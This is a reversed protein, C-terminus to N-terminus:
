AQAEPYLRYGQRVREPTMRDGLKASLRSEFGKVGTQDTGTLICVFEGGRNHCVIDEQRCLEALSKNLEADEESAKIWYVAFPQDFKSVTDVNRRLREDLEPHFKVDSGSAEIVPGKRSPAADGQNMLSSLEEATVHGVNSDRFKLRRGSRRLLADVRARLEAPTFPQTIFDDAGARLYLVKDAQRNAAPSLFALSSASDRALDLIAAIAGLNRSPTILVLGPRERKARKVGESLDAEARVDYDDGLAETVRIVIDPPAGILLVSRTATEEWPKTVDSVQAGDSEYNILGRGNLIRYHAALNSHDAYRLKTLRMLRGNTAPDHALDIVGFADHELQRIVPNLEADNEDGAVLLTTVPLDELANILSQTISLAFHASYATNILTYVPDIVLRRAGSKKIYDGLEEVIALVDAPSEVLEFYRQSPNLIGLQGRKVAAEVNFGLASAQALVNEPRQDTILVGPEQLELGRALYQLGLISKGVGAGGKVVYVKHPTLGGAGYDLLDIGSILRDAAIAAPKKEDSIEKAPTDLPLAKDTKSPSSAHNSSRVESSGNM